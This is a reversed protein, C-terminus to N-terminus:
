RCKENPSLSWEYLQPAQQNNDTIIHLKKGYVNFFSGTCFGKGTGSCDGFEHYNLNSVMRSELGRLERIRSPHKYHFQWGSNLIVERAESYPMGQYLGRPLEQKLQGLLCSEKSSLTWHYLRPDQQNNVTVIGLRKGNSGIFDGGCFGIGTGSCDGFEDYGLKNVMRSTLGSLERVRPRGYDIQWGSNLIIQRAESYPMGQRLGTPIEQGRGVLPFLAFNVIIGIGSLLGYRM